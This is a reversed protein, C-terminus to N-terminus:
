PSGEINESSTNDLVVIVFALSDGNATGVGIAHRGNGSEESTKRTKM